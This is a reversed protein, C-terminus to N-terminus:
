PSRCEETLSLCTKGLYNEELFVAHLNICLMATTGKSVIYKGITWGGDSNYANGFTNELM